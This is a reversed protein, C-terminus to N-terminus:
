ARRSVNDSPMDSMTSFAALKLSVAPRRYSLPSARADSIMRSKAFFLGCLDQNKKVIYSARLGGFLSRLNQLAEMPMDGLANMGHSAAVQSDRRKCFERFQDLALERGPTEVSWVSKVPHVRVRNRLFM